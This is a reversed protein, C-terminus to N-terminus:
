WQGDRAVFLDLLQRDTLGCLSGTEFLIRMHKWSANTSTREMPKASWPVRDLSMGM